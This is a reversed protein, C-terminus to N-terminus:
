ASKKNKLKKKDDVRKAIKLMEDTIYNMKKKRETESINPTHVVVNM